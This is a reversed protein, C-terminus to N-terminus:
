VYRWFEKNLQTELTGRRVFMSTQGYQERDLLRRFADWTSPDNENIAPNQVARIPLYLHTSFGIVVLAVALALIKGERTRVALYILSGVAAAITVAGFLPTFGATPSLILYIAIVMVASAALAMAWPVLRRSAFFLLLSVYLFLAGAGVREMGMAVLMV